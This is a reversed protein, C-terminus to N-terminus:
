RAAARRPAEASAGRRVQVLEAVISVAIEAPTEAGIALGIPAHVRAMREDPVGASALHRFVERVRRRSGIMGIYGADSDIVTRLAAEDWQHGRTVLVVYTDPGIPTARLVDEIRGAVVTDTEPFRAPNAFAERDDVVTVRFELLKAMRALALGIHGAGVVILEPQPTIIEAFLGLGREAQVLEWSGAAVDIWVRRARGALRISTAVERLATDLGAPAAGVVAGDSEVVWKAGVPVGGAGEPNSVAVVLAVPRKERSAEEVTEIVALDTLGVGATREWRLCDVFVDMVGGCHTLSGDSMEGTLDVESLGPRGQDLARAADWFVQAEGCGGGVSGVIAGSKEVIMRAGVGRPTSGRARIVTATAVPEGARGFEALRQWFEDM